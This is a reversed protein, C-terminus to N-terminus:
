VVQDDVLIRMRYVEPVVTLEKSSLRPLAMLQLFLVQYIERGFEVCQFRDALRVMCDTQSASTCFTILLRRDVKSRM